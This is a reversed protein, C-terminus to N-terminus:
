LPHTVAHRVLPPKYTLHICFLLHHEDHLTKCSVVKGCTNLFVTEILSYFVAFWIRIVTKMGLTCTGTFTANKKTSRYLLTFTKLKLLSILVNFNIFKDTYWSECYCCEKRILHSTNVVTFMSQPRGLQSVTDGTPPQVKNVEARNWFVPKWWPHLWSILLAMTM